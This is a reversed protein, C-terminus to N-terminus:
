GGHILHGIDRFGFIAALEPNLSRAIEPEHVERSVEFDIFTLTGTDRDFLINHMGADLSCISISRLTRIATSCESYTHIKEASSLSAWIDALQRGPVKKLLMITGKTFKASCIIDGFFVLETFFGFGSPRLQYLKDYVVLENLGSYQWTMILMKPSFPREFALNQNERPLLIM